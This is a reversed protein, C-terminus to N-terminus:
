HGVLLADEDHPLLPWPQGDPKNAGQRDNVAKAWVGLQEGAPLLLRTRVTLRWGCCCGARWGPPRGRRAPKLV